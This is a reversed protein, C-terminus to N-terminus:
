EAPYYRTEEKKTTEPCYLQGGAGKNIADMVAEREREMWVRLGGRLRPSLIYGRPAMRERHPVRFYTRLPASAGFPIYAIQMTIPKARGYDLGLYEYCQGRKRRGNRGFIIQVRSQRKM